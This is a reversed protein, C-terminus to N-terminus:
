RKLEAFYTKMPAFYYDRWGDKYSSGDGTLGSHVLTVRTGGAVPTLTVTITSDPDDAAFDSTRWSQVIREGPVLEMNKGSAYGDWASFSGGVRTSGKAKAGTMASHRRGDLWADYIDRAPAPIITSVTFRM